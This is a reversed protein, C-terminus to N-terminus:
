LSLWPSMLNTTALWVAMKLPMLLVLRLLSPTLTLALLASARPMESFFPLLMVM